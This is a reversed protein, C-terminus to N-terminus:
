ITLNNNVPKVDIGNDFPKIPIFDVNTSRALDVDPVAYEAQGVCNEFSQLVNPMM